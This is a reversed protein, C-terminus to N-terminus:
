NGDIKLLTLLEECYVRHGHGRLVAQAAVRGLRAEHQRELLQQHHQVAPQRRLRHQVEQRQRGHRGRAQGAQGGVRRRVDGVRQELPDCM